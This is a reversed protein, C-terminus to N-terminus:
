TERKQVPIKRGRGGLYSPNYIHVVIGWKNTLYPQTVPIKSTHWWVWSTKSILDGNSTQGQVIIRKGRVGSYSPNCIHAL